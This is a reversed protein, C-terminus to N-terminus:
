KLGGDITNIMLRKQFIAYFILVPLVALVMAACIVPFANSANNLGAVGVAITPHNSYFLSPYWYDNWFGLFRIITFTLVGNKALPLMIQWFLRFDSAGDVQASEAFSWPILKFYSHIYLFAGGFASANVLIMGIYTGMLHLDNMLKYTAPLSSIAPIFSAVLVCTYIIKSGKFEYKALVYASCCTFLMSVLTEGLSLLVSNLFMEWITTNESGVQISTFAKIYNDFTPSGTFWFYNPYTRTGTEPDFSGIFEFPNKFSNIVLYLFPYLLSIAYLLFLAFVVWKIINQKLNSASFARRRFYKERKKIQEKTLSDM